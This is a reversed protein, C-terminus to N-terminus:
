SMRKRHRWGERDETARKLAVFGGDNALDHLIQIKGSGRKPKGKMRGEIIEHLRRDHKSLWVHNLLSPSKFWVKLFM